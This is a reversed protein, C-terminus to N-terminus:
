MVEREVMKTALRLRYSEAYEERKDGLLAIADILEYANAVIPRDFFASQGQLLGRLDCAVGHWEHRMDGSIDALFSDAHSDIMERIRRDLELKGRIVVSFILRKAEPLNTTM